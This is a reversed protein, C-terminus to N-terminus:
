EIGIRGRMYKIFDEKPRVRINLIYNYFFYENRDKECAKGSSPM